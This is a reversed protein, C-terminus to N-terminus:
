VALMLNCGSKTNLFDSSLRRPKPEHCCPLWVGSDVVGLARFWHHFSVNPKFESDRYVKNVINLVYVYKDGEACLQPCWHIAAFESVDRCSCQYVEGADAFM